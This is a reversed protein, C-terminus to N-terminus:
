SRLNNKPCVYNNKIVKDEVLGINTDEVAMKALPIRASNAAFSARFFIEDVQKQDLKLFEYHAKEALQMLTDLEQLNTVEMQISM